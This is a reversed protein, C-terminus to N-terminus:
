IALRSGITFLWTSFRWTTRYRDIREWARVFTDQALDEADDAHGVRRLLFNYLRGQYREVLKAFSPLSGAQARCALEESSLVELTCSSPDVPRTM